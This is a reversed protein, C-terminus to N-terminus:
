DTTHPGHLRRARKVWSTSLAGVDIPCILHWPRTNAFLQNLVSDHLECEALEDAGRGAHTVESIGVPSPGDPLADVFDVFAQAVLAPNRFPGELDLFRVQSHPPSETPQSYRERLSEHRSAPAVVFVPAGLDVANHVLDNVLRAGHFSGRYELLEHQFGAVSRASSVSHAM